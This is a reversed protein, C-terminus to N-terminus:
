DSESEACSAGGERARGSESEAEKLLMRVQERRWGEWGSESETWRAEKMTM